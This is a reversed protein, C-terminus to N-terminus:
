EGGVGGAVELKEGETAEVPDKKGGGSGTDVVDVCDIDADWRPRGGGAAM